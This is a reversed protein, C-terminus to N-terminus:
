GPLRHLNLGTWTPSISAVTFCSVPILSHMSKMCLATQVRTGLSLSGSMSKRFGLRPKFVSKVSLGFACFERGRTRFFTSHALTPLIQALLAVGWRICLLYNATLLNRLLTNPTKHFRSCLSHHSPHNVGDNRQWLIEPKSSWSFCQGTLPCILSCSQHCFLSSASHM